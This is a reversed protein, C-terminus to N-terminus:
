VREIHSLKRECHSFPPAWLPLPCPRMVDPVSKAIGHSGVVISTSLGRCFSIFVWSLVRSHERGRLACGSHSPLTTFQRLFQRRWCMNSLRRLQYTFVIDGIHYYTPRIRGLMDLLDLRKGFGPVIMDVDMLNAQVLLAEEPKILLFDRWLKALCVLSGRGRHLPPM